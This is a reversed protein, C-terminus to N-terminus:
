NILKIFIKLRSALKKTRYYARGAFEFSQEDLTGKLVINLCIKVAALHGKVDHALGVIYEDIFRDQETRKANVQGHSHEAQKIKTLINTTIFVVLYLTITVALTFGLVYTTDKYYCYEIYGKLCYHPILGSYELWVM